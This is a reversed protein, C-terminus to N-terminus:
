SLEKKADTAAKRSIMEGLAVFSIWVGLVGRQKIYIEM